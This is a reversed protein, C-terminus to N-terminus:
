FNESCFFGRGCEAIWEAVTQRRSGRGDDLDVSLARDMPLPEGWPYENDDHSEGVTAAWIASADEPSHAIVYDSDDHYCFLPM